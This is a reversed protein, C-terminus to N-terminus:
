YVDGGVRTPLFNNFFGGILYSQLLDLTPAEVSQARLLLKWRYASILLGILRSTRTFHNTFGTGSRLSLLFDAGRHFISFSGTVRFGASKLCRKRGILSM